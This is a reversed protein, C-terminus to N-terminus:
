NFVVNPFLNFNQVPFGQKLSRGALPPNQKFLRRLYRCHDFSTIGLDVTQEILRQVEGTTLNKGWSAWSM